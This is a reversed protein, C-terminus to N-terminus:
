GQRDADTAGHQDCGGSYGPQKGANFANGQRTSRARSQDCEGAPRDGETGGYINPCLEASGGEDGRLGVDRSVRFEWYVVWEFHHLGGQDMLPVAKQITFFVGKTNIDVCHDYFEETVKDYPMQEYVGANAFVVDLKGKRDKIEAYMRDLDGLKGADAQIGVANQGLAAVAKDLM